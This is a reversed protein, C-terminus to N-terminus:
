DDKSKDINVAVEGLDDDGGLDSTDEIVSDEADDDSDADDGGEISALEKELDDDGTATKADDDDNAAAAVVAVAVKAPEPAARSRRPKLAADPLFEAECEPCIIPRRSFDYFRSSCAVCTRKVGWEAKAV